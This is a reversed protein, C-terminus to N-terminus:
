PKRKVQKTRPQSHRIAIAGRAGTTAPLREKLGAAMGAITVLDIFGGATEALWKRGV